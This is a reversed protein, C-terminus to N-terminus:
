AVSKRKCYNETQAHCNPCLIEINEDTNNNHNGDKHHLELPIPLLNWETRLCKYCKKERKGELFLRNKLVHSSVKKSGEQFTKKSQPTRHIQGTFHSFDIKNDICYKKIKQQGSSSNIGMLRATKAFSLSGKVADEIKM